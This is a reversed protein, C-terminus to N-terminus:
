FKTKLEKVGNNTYYILEESKGKEDLLMAVKIILMKSIFLMAITFM